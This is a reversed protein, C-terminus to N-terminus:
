RNKVIDQVTTEEDSIHRPKQYKRIPNTYFEAYNEQM